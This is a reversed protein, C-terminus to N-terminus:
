SPLNEHILDSYLIDDIMENTLNLTGPRSSRILPLELKRVKPRPSTEHTERRLRRLAIERFTKGEEAATIKIERFIEDPIDITTRM